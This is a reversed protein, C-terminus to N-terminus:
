NAVFFWNILREGSASTELNGRDKEKGRKNNDNDFRDSSRFEILLFRLSVARRDRQFLDRM